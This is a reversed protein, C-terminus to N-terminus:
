AARGSQEAGLGKVTVFTARTLVAVQRCHFEITALDGRYAGEAISRWISAARDAFEEIAVFRDADCDDVLTAAPALALESHCITM